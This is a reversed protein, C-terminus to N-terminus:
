INEQLMASQEEPIQAIAKLFNTKLDNGKPELKIGLANPVKYFEEDSSETDVVRKKAGVEEFEDM